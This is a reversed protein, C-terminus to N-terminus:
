SFCERSSGALGTGASGERVLLQLIEANAPPFQLGALDQRAVWRFPPKPELANLPTASLFHLEVAGHEYAHTVTAYTAGVAVSIGTEELCERAAAAALTEGPRAKGGPFEWYGALPVGAPRQGVLFRGNHEVVAVAVPTRGPLNSIESKFPTIAM